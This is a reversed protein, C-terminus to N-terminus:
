YEPNIVKFSLRGKLYKSYGPEITRVVIGEAKNGNPYKLGAAMAILQNITYNFRDGWDVTPVFKLGNDKCFEEAKYWPLLQMCRPLLENGVEPDFETNIVNFVFLDAEKLGMKNGQIKPGCLEGQIIINPNAELISKLNYKKAIQWFTNDKEEALVNNRSCVLFKGDKMLATLSSGDCKMSIYYPCGMIEDLLKVKSCANTEDTKSVIDSPFYGMRRMKGFASGGGSQKPIYKTVGLVDTLDDGENLAVDGLHEKVLSLPIAIVQSYLPGDDTNFKKPKVRFKSNRMFEFMPLEPLLSDYRVVLVLDGVKFDDKLVVTTWGEIKAFLIRDKGAMPFLESVTALVALNKRDVIEEAEIDSIDEVDVM